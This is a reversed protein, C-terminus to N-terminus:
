KGCVTGSDQRGSSRLNRRVAPHYSVDTSTRVRSLLGRRGKGASWRLAGNPGAGTAPDRHEATHAAGTAVDDACATRNAVADNWNSFVRTGCVFHATRTQTECSFSRLGSVSPRRLCTARLRGDSQGHKESRGILKVLAMSMFGVFGVLAM